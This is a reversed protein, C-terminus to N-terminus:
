RPHNIYDVLNEVVTAANTTQITEPHHAVIVCSAARVVVVGEKGKKGYLSRDDARIALFKDGGIVFGNQLAHNSDSFASALATVEQQPINFDKSAAEVGSFDPSLIAAKDFQGSGDSQNTLNIRNQSSPSTGQWIASHQGM